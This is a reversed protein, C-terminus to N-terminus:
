CDNHGGEHMAVYAEGISHYGNALLALQLAEGQERKLRKDQEWPAESTAAIQKVFELVTGIWGEDGIALGELLRRRYGVPSRKSLKSVAKDIAKEILSSPINELVAPIVLPPLLCELTVIEVKCGGEDEEQFKSSSEFSSEQNDSLTIHPADSQTVVERDSPSEVGGIVSHCLTDIKDNKKTRAAAYAIYYTDIFHQKAAIIEAKTGEFKPINLTKFSSTQSNNERFRPNRKLLGIQEFTNLIYTLSTKSATSRERITRNSLWCIGEDDSASDALAILVLRAIAPLPVDWAMGVMKNSM